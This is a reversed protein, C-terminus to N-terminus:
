QLPKRTTPDLEIAMEMFKAEDVGFLKNCEKVSVTTVFKLTEPLVKAVEKDIKKADVKGIYATYDEIANTELNAVKVAVELGLKTRTVMM